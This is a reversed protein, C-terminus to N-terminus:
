AGSPGPQPPGGANAEQPRSPTLRHPQPPTEPLPGLPEERERKLLWGLVQMMFVFTFGADDAVARLDPLPVDYHNLENPKNRSRKILRMASGTPTVVDNIAHLVINRNETCIDFHLLASLLKESVAPDKEDFRVIERLMDIRERNSLKKFLLASYDQTSHFSARFIDRLTEEAYNFMLSFHGIARLHEDDAIRNIKLPWEDTDPM